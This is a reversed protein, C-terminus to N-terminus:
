LDEGDFLDPYLGLPGFSYSGQPAYGRCSRGLGLRSGSQVHPIDAAATIVLQPRNDEKLKTDVKSPGSAAATLAAAEAAATADAVAQAAAAETAQLAALRLLLKTWLLRSAAKVAKKFPKDDLTLSPLIVPPTPM